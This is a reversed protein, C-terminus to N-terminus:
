WGEVRERQEEIEKERKRAYVTLEGFAVVFHNSDTDTDASEIISVGIM